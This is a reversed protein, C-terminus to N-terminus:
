WMKGYESLATATSEHEFNNQVAFEFEIVKKLESLKDSSLQGHWQRSNAGRSLPLNTFLNNFNSNMERFTIKELSLESNDVGAGTHVM